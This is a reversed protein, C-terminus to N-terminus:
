REGAPAAARQPVQPRDVKVAQLRERKLRHQETQNKM